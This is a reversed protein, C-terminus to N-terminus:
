REGAKSDRQRAQLRINFHSQHGGIHGVHHAVAQRAVGELGIRPPDVEGIEPGVAVDQGQGAMCEVGHEVVQDAIRHAVHM